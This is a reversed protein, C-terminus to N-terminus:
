KELWSKIRDESIENSNLRIGGSERAVAEAAKRTNGSKSFYAVLSKGNM